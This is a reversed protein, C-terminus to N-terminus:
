MYGRPGRPWIIDRAWQLWEKIVDKKTGPDPSPAVLVLVENRPEPTTFIQGRDCVKDVETGVNPLSTSREKIHLQIASEWM